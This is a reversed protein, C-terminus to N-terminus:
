RIPGQWVPLNFNKARLAVPPVSTYTSPLHTTPKSSRSEVRCSRSGPWWSHVMSTSHSIYRDWLPFRQRNCLKPQPRHQRSSSYDLSKAAVKISVCCRRDPFTPLDWKNCRFFTTTLFVWEWVIFHTLWGEVGPQQMFRWQCTCTFLLGLANSTTYQAQQSKGQMNSVTSYWCSTFQFLQGQPPQRQRSQKTNSILDMLFWTSWLWSHLHYLMRRAILRFHDTLKNKEFMERRVVEAARALHMVDSDHDCAKKLASGINKQFTLLTNREESRARFEPLEAM